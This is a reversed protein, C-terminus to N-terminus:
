VKFMIFVSTFYIGPAMRTKGCNVSVVVNKMAFLDVKDIHFM